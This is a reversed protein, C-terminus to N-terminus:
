LKVFKDNIIWQPMMAGESKEYYQVAVGVGPIAALNSGEYLGFTYSRLWPEIQYELLLKKITTSHKRNHPHFRESNKLPKFQYISKRLGGKGKLWDLTAFDDFFETDGVGVNNRTFHNEPTHTPLQETIIINNQWRRIVYKDVEIIPHKDVAANIHHQIIYNTQTKSLSINTKDKVFARVYQKQENLSLKQLTPTSLVRPAQLDPVESLWTASQSISREAQPFRKKFVPLVEHRIFNRDFRTDDNSNDHIFNLQKMEAYDIIDQYDCDLLPRLYQGDAFPKIIPMARLGDLGSGRMLQLLFTEAQDRRHHASIFSGGRQMHSKILNYRATRAFAETSEGQQPKTKVHEVILKINMEDCINQCHEVWQLSSSQLNHNVHIATIECSLSNCKRLLNITDLLVHSDRGGSYGILLHDSPHSTLAELCKQPIVEHNPM